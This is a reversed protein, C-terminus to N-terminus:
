WEALIKKIDDNNCAFGSLGGAEKVVRVMNQQDHAERGRAAKTEVTMFQAIRKGVHEPKIVFSHYGILDHGGDGGVGCDAWANTIKGNRVIPGKYRQNRLLRSLRDGVTCIFLQANKWVNTENQM